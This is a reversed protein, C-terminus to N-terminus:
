SLYNSIRLIDAFVGAATVDAGAGPGKVVIPRDKYHKTYLAFINDSESLSYFPHKNDVEQLSIEAKGNRLSAIYRLANGKVEAANRKAEFEDDHKKLKTFFDNTSKAGRVPPPVLNEVKINKLELSLGTERALILLKRAVDMGNLDERPDPETYGKERAEQVTESFTKGKKFSTFIYSLTGSMVGEIKLIKDGSTVLDNVTSIIPLGAGVNTEYLFKVNHKIASQKLQLYYDFSSSNARKNPTVVSISSDLIDKYRLTVEDSATCDVFISNPLNLKKMEKIFSNLNTKSGKSRLNEEWKEPNISNSDILMNKSNALAIVKLNLLYEKALFDAQSTIQKLLTGGVLGTGVIYVNVTKTISLFFADHLANLAKTEDNRSIVTSINLESSGQAIAVINIGNKGLAQFIRGSIGPTKRMNEGVIAIISLDTEVVPDYILKEKIEYYFEQQLAKKANSAAKPMVAICLSHESSAQTILIINIQKASLASFIRQAIGTVGVMGGGQITILSINDISSIAKILFNNRDTHGNILTGKFDRNFTNKIRIPINKDMAPHMTPPHIVKAGFHSLEMAEEYTLGKLPFAKKVKRPDATHVGDVDTWIEIEKANLAAAFISATYDSGGRGLTTTENNYTSGIFGTVVQLKKHKSFYTCINEYTKNFDVKAAGFSEDTKLLSRSDLFECAINQDILVHSIIYTSLREGFSLIFDQTRSSIEKVLFVGHLVDDLENLHLKLQALISSQTKVALLKKAISIHKEELKKFLEKYDLNGESAVQSMKLLNDTVQYFASFILVIRKNKQISNKVIEIVNKIRGADGISSGGFKLVKM